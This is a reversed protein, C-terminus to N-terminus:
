QLGPVQLVPVVYNPLGMSALMHHAHTRWYPWANVVANFNAFAELETETVDGDETLAYVLIFHAVANLPAEAIADETHPDPSDAESEQAQESSDHGHLRFGAEVYFRQPVDGPEERDLLDAFFETHYDSLNEITEPQRSFFSLALRIDELQVKGIVERATELDGPWAM